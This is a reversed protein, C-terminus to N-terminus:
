RAPPAMRTAPARSLVQHHRASATLPAKCLSSVLLRTDLSQRIVLPAREPAHQGTVVLLPVGDMAAHAIGNVANTIGPALTVLVAGPKGTAEAETAAMIAAAGEDRAAVYALGAEPLADLLRLHDEGPLGYVRRVQAERLVQAFATAVRTMRLMARTCIRM